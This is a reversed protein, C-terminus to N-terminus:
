LDELFKQIARVEAASSIFLLEREAAAQAQEAAHLAAAAGAASTRASALQARVADLRRQVDSLESRPPRSEAAALPATLLAALAVCMAMLRITV